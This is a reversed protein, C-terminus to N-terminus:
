DTEGPKELNEGDGAKEPLARKTIALLDSEINRWEQNLNISRITIKHEDHQYEFTYETDITPYLLIGECKMTLPNNTKEQNKLYACLQYLNGSDIKDRDNLINKYKTDIIIKRDPYEINIDTQMIPLVNGAAPTFPELKWDINRRGVYDYGTLHRKYFNRVFGEYISRMLIEDQIFDKFKRSEGEKSILLNDYILESVKIMFDYFFNNRNLQVRRFIKKTICIDDIKHLRRYLNKLKNNTDLELGECGIMNKITTKLLQNHLINYDLEDYECYLRPQKFFNRKINMSFDIKGRIRQIEESHQVYGRDLGKKFIHSLGEILVTAFLQSVENKDLQSVPIIKGEELRNWAYCLLYYINQVPIKM